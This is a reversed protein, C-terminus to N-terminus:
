PAPFTRVGEGPVDLTVRRPAYLQVDYVNSRVPVIRRGAAATVTVSRVGDPVLGVLLQRSARLRGPPRLAMALRGQRALALPQCFWQAGGGATFPVRLCVGGNAPVVSVLGSSLGGVPERLSRALQPNAGLPGAGPHIADFADSTRLPRRLV